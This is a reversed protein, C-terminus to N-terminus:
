YYGRYGDMRVKSPKKISIHISDLKNFVMVALISGIVYHAHSPFFIAITYMFFFSLTIALLTRM